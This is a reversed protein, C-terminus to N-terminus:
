FWTYTHTITHIMDKINRQPQNTCETQIFWHTELTHYLRDYTYFTHHKWTYRTFELRSMQSIRHKHTNRVEVRSVNTVRNEITFGRRVRIVSVNGYMEWVYVRM